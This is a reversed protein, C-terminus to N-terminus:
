QPKQIMINQANFRATMVQGRTVGMPNVPIRVFLQKGLEQVVYGRTEGIQVARQDVWGRQEAYTTLADWEKGAKALEALMVRVLDRSPAAALLTAGAETPVGVSFYRWLDGLTCLKKKKLRKQLNKGPKIAM